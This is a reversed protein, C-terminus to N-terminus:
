SLIFSAQINQITIFEDVFFLIILILIPLGKPGKMGWTANNYIHLSFDVQKHLCAFVFVVILTFHNYFGYVHVIVHLNQTIM